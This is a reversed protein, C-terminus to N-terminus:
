QISYCIDANNTIGDWTIGCEDALKKKECAGSNPGTGKRLYKEHSLDLTHCRPESEFYTNKTSECETDSIKTYFDPCKAINPPFQFDSSSRSLISGIFALSVILVIIAIFIVQKYFGM